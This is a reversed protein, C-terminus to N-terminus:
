HRRRQAWEEASSPLCEHLEYKDRLFGEIVEPYEKLMSRPTIFKLGCRQCGALLPTKGQYQFIKFTRENPVPNKLLEDRSLSQYSIGV